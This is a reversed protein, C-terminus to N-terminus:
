ADVAGIIDTVCPILREGGIDRDEDLDHAVGVHGRQGRVDRGLLQAVITPAAARRDAPGAPPLDLARSHHSPSTAVLFHTPEGCGSKRRAANGPRFDRWGPRRAGMGLLSLRRRRGRDARRRSCRWRRATRARAAPWTRSAMCAASGSTVSAILHLWGNKRSSPRGNALMAANLACQLRPKQFPPRGTASAAAPGRSLAIPWNPRMSDSASRGLAAASRWASRRLRARGPSASFSSFASRAAPGSASARPAPAAPRGPRPAARRLGARALAEVGERGALLALVHVPDDLGLALRRARRADRLRDFPDGLALRPVPLVLVASFIKAGPADSRGGRADLPYRGDAAQPGVRVVGM